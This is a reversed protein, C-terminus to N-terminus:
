EAIDEGVVDEGVVDEEVAFNGESVVPFSDAEEVVPKGVVVLGTDEPFCCGPIMM